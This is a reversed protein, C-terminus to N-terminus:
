SNDLNVLFGCHSPERAFIQASNYLNLQAYNTQPVPYMLSKPGLGPIGMEPGQTAGTWVVDTGAFIAAHSDMLLQHEIVEIDGIDLSYVFKRSGNQAKSVSYGPDLRRTSATNEAWLKVWSVTPVYCRISEELGRNKLDTLAEVLLDSGMANGQADIENGVIVPYDALPLGFFSGSDATIQNFLGLQEYFATTGNYTGALFITDGDAVTNMGSGTITFTLTRTRLNFNTLKLVLDTGRVTTGNFAQFEATLKRPWWGRSFTAASVVVTWTSGTTNVPSGEVVGVGNQGYWASMEQNTRMVKNMSALVLQVQAEFAENDGASQWAADFTFQNSQIASYTYVDAEKVITPKPTRLTFAEGDKGTATYTQGDSMVMPQRYLRGQARGKSYNISGDQLKAIPPTADLIKEALVIKFNGVAETLSTPFAGSDVPM